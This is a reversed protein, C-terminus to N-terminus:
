LGSRLSVGRNTAPAAAMMGRLFRVLSQARLSAKEYNSGHVAALVQPRQGIRSDIVTPFPESYVGVDVLTDHKFHGVVYAIRNM